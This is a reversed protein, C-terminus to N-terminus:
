RHDGARLFVPALAGAALSDVPEGFGLALWSPGGCVPCREVVAALERLQRALDGPTGRVARVGCARLQLEVERPRLDLSAVRIIVVPRLQEARNFAPSAPSDAGAIRLTPAAAYITAALPALTLALAGAIADVHRHYTPEM